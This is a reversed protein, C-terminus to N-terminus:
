HPKNAPTNPKKAKPEESKPKTNAAPPKQATNSNSNASMNANSNSASNSNASNTNTNKPSVYDLRQRGAEADELLDQARVNQDDLEIAKKLPDIAEHYKALKILVAGLETQYETDDPKLKVAQRFAKEAEEDRNLKAYTRGLNFWGADDNPNADLWKKYVVVAKEFAKQSNPKTKGDNASETIEGSQEIQRELLSYAVGLKFYAEAFDPNLKVAQRYAAIAMETENEDMLRDGEALAENPDNNSSFQDEAAVDASNSEDATSSSKRWCGSSASVILILVFFISIQKM